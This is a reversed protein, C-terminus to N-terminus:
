NDNWKSNTQFWPKIIDINENYFIFLDINGDSTLIFYVNHNVSLKSQPKDDTPEIELRTDSEM